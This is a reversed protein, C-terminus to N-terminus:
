INRMSVRALLAYVVWWHVVVDEAQTHDMQLSVAREALVSAGM